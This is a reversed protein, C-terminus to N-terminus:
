PFFYALFIAHGCGPRRSTSSRPTCVGLRTTSTARSQAPEPVTSIHILGSAQTAWDLRSNQGAKWTALIGHAPAMIPADGHRSHQLRPDSDFKSMRPAVRGNQSSSRVRVVM